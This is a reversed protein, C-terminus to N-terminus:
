VREAFIRMKELYAHLQGKQRALRVPPLNALLTKGYNKKLLREDLVAVMGRDRESRILRGFAQRLMTSAFPLALEFFPKKGKKELQTSRAKFIPDDPPTFMLKTIILMRLGDGVVDVGQWFSATGLLVSNKNEKFKELARNAGLRLQSYVPYEFQGDLREEVAAMMYNSTFLVLAGGGSLNVLEVIEDALMQEYRDKEDESGHFSPIPLNEPVYLVASKSYEFPSFYVQQDVLDNGHGESIAEALFNGFYGRSLLDQKSRPASGFPWYGLTASTYVMTESLLNELEQGLNLNCSYLYLQGNDKRGWYVYNDLNMANFQNLFKRVREFFKAVGKLSNMVASDTEEELVNAIHRKIEETNVLLNECDVFMAKEIIRTENESFNLDLEVEWTSFFALWDSVLKNWVENFEFGAELAIPGIKGMARDFGKKQEAMAETSFALTFISFGTKIFGHAEDLVVAGYAPLTRKDNLMHFLLLHHNGILLRSNNWATKARYYNCNSFHQCKQGPCGDSDRNVTSWFSPSFEVDCEYISGFATGSFVGDAHKKFEDLQENDILDQFRGTDLTEEYRLKCLYNSSGLCLEFPLDNDLLKQLVPIDKENLQMQLNKTETSILVREAALYSYSIAAILYAFSKGIGTGAEVVSSTEQMLNTLIQQSMRIQDERTQYDPFHAALKDFASGVIADLTEKEIHREELDALQATSAEFWPPFIPQLGVQKDEEAELWNSM